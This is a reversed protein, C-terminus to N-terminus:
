IKKYQREVKTQSALQPPLVLGHKLRGLMIALNAKGTLYEYIREHM